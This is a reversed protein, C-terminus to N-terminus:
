GQYAGGIIPDFISGYGQVATNNGAYGFPGNFPRKLTGYKGGTTPNSITGYGTGTPLMSNEAYTFPDVADYVVIGISRCGAPLVENIISIISVFTPLDPPNYPSEILVDGPPCEFLRVQSANTFLIFTQIVQEPQGQSTNIKIQGLIDMLYSQDSQGPQRAIGVIQGINDLQPGFAGSLYRLTNMQTLALEIQQVQAILVTLVARINESNQYQTLLRALGESLYNDDEIFM